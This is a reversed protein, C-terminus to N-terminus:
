SGGGGGGGVPVGDRPNCPLMVKVWKFSFELIALNGIYKLFCLPFGCPQPVMVHLVSDRFRTHPTDDWRVGGGGLLL